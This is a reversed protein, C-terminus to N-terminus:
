AAFDSAPAAVLGLNALNLVRPRLRRPWQGREWVGEADPELHRESLIGVFEILMVLRDLFRPLPLTTSRRTPLPPLGTARGADAWRSPPPRPVASPAEGRVCRALPSEM